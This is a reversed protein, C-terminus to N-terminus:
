FSFLPLSLMLLVPFRFLNGPRDIAFSNGTLSQSYLKLPLSELTSNFLVRLLSVNDRRPNAM